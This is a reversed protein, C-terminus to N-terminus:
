PLCHPLGLDPAGACRTSNSSHLRTKQLCRPFPFVMMWKSLMPQQWISRKWQTRVFHGGTLVCIICSCELASYTQLLAGSHAAAYSRTSVWSGAEHEHGSKCFLISFLLLSSWRLPIASAGSSSTYATCIKDCQLVSRSSSSVRICAKCTACQRGATHKLWCNTTCGSFHVSNDQHCDVQLAVTCLCTPPQQWYRQQLPRQAAIAVTASSDAGGFLLLLIGECSCSTKRVGINYYLVCCTRM